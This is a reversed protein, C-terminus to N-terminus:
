RRRRALLLGLLGLLGLGGLGQGAVASCGLVVSDEPPRDPESWDGYDVDRPEDDGGGSDGGGNDGGGDSGGDGGNGGNGGNGGGDGNTARSWETNEEIWPHFRDLRVAGSAGNVCSQGDGTVDYVFSNVGALQWGGSVRRLGAGGSDGQCLNKVEDYAIIYDGRLEWFGIDATRKVGSDSAGDRTVGFGVYDLKEGRSFSTASDVMIPMPRLGAGPGGTIQLVGIDAGNNVNGTWNPHNISETVEAVHFYDGAWINGGFVVHPTLGQREYQRLADICHAATVVWREHVWTGSCFLAAQGNRAIGALAVVERFDTTASGNVIQARDSSIPIDVWQARDLTELLVDSAGMDHADDLIDDQLTLPEAFALGSLSLLLASLSM